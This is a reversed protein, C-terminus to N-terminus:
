PSRRKVGTSQLIVQRPVAINVALARLRPNLLAVSMVLLTIIIGYRTSPDRSQLATFWRVIVTLRSVRLPPTLLSIHLSESAVVGREGEGRM